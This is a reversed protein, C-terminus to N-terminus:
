KECTIEHIHHRHTQCSTGMQRQGLCGKNVSKGVVTDRKSVVYLALMRNGAYKDNQRIPHGYWLLRREQLKSLIETVIVIDKHLYKQHLGDELYWVDLM